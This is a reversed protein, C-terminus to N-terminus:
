NLTLTFNLLALSEQQNSYSKLVHYNSTDSIVHPHLLRISLSYLRLCRRHQRRRANRPRRDPSAADGALLAALFDPGKNNM